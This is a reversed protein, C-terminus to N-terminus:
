KYWKKKRPPKKAKEFKIAKLMEKFMRGPVFHVKVQRINDPNIRFINDVLKNRLTIRFMGFEGFDVVNGQLLMKPVQELMMRFTATIDTPTLTSSDSANKAFDELTVRGTTIISAYYKSPTAPNNKGKREVFHYQVAM